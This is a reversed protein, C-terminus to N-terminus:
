IELYERSNGGKVSRLMELHGDCNRTAPTTRDELRKEVRSYSALQEPPSGSGEDRTLM